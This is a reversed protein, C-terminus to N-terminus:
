KPHKNEEKNKHNIKSRGHTMRIMRSKKRKKRWKKKKNRPNKMRGKDEAEEEEEVKNIRRPLHFSQHKKFKRKLIAILVGIVITM